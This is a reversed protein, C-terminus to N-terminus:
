FPIDDDDLPEQQEYQRSPKSTPAQGGRSRDPKSADDKPTFSLSFFKGDVKPSEKVWASVWYEVGDITASGKMQPHTEKERRNNKYIVGKNNDDYQPM